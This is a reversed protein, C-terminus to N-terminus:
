DPTPFGWHVIVNNRATIDRSDIMRRSLYIHNDCLPWVLYSPVTRENPSQPYITNMVGLAVADRTCAACANSVFMDLVRQKEARYGWAPETLDIVDGHLGVRLITLTENTAPVPLKHNGHYATTPVVRAQTRVYRLSQEVDHWANFGCRCFDGPPRAHGYRRCEAVDNVVYPINRCVLPMFVLENTDRIYPTAAKWGIVWDTQTESVFPLKGNTM